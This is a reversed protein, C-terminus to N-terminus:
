QRLCEHKAPINYGDESSVVIIKCPGEVVRISGHDAPPLVLWLRQCKPTRRHLGHLSQGFDHMDDYRVKADERTIEANIESASHDTVIRPKENRWVVFMASMEM